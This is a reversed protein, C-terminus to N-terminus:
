DEEHAVPLLLLVLYAVLWARSLSVLSLIASTSPLFFGNSINLLYFLGLNLSTDFSAVIITWSILTFILPLFNKTKIAFYIFWPTLWLLWQPHFHTFTLSSFLAAALAPFLSIKRYVVLGIVLTYFIFFWSIDHGSAVSIGAYTSKTIQDAYLAYYRYIPSFIFPLIGLFYTVIGFSINTLAFRLSKKQFYLYLALVPLVIVAAPKVLASLAIFVAAHHFHSKKLAILALVLFFTIIIDVQGIMSSVYIALPNLAWVIKALSKNRKDDFLKPITFIIAIDALILPLKYIFLPLYPAAHNWSGSIVQDSAGRLILFFPLYVFSPLLYALPQYNLIMQHPFLRAIGNIYEVGYDYFNLWHGDLVIIKSAFALISLDPHYTFISLVLRLIIGFVIVLSVLSIKKM